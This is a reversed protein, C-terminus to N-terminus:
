PTFASPYFYQPYLDPSLYSAIVLVTLLMGMLFMNCGEKWTRNGDYKAFSLFLVALPILVLLLKWLFLVSDNIDPNGAGAGTVITIGL